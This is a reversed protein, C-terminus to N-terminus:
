PLITTKVFLQKIGKDTSVTLVKTKSNGPSTGALKMTASIQGSEKPALKWPTKPLKAVTCGCSTQVFNIIVDGSSINTLNFAFNSEPTGNTVRVEKQQADFVLFNEIPVQPPPRPAQIRVPSSLPPQAPTPPLPQALLSLCSMGVFGGAMFVLLCSRTM